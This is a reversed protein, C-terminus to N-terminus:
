TPDSHLDAQEIGPRRLGKQATIDLEPRRYDDDSNSRRRNIRPVAKRGGDGSLPQPRQRGGRSGSLPAIPASLDRAPDTVNVAMIRNDDSLYFLEKGDRRWQPEVGGSTSILRKRGPVPFSQLYVEM